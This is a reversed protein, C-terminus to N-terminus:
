VQPPYFSIRLQDFRYGKLPKRTTGQLLRDTDNSLAVMFDCVYVFAGEGGPLSLLFFFQRLVPGFLQM